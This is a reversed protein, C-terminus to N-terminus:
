PREVQSGWFIRAGGGGGVGYNYKGLAQNPEAIQSQSAAGGGIGDINLPHGSGIVALLVEALTERDEPLDARNFYPGRSTGGRMFIFPISIQTM